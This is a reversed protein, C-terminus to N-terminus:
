GHCLLSQGREEIHIRHRGLFGVFDRFKGGFLIGGGRSTRSEIEINVVVEVGEKGM